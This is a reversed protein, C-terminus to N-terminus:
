IIIHVTYIIYYIYIINYINYMYIYIMKLTEITSTPITFPQKKQHKKDSQHPLDTFGCRETVVCHKKRNLHGHNVPANRKRGNGGKRMADSPNELCCQPSSYGPALAFPPSTHGQSAISELTLELCDLCPSM